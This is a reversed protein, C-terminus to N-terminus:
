GVAAKAESITAAVHAWHRLLADEDYRLLTLAERLMPGYRPHETIAKVQAPDVLVPWGVRNMHQPLKGIGRAGLFLKLDLALQEELEKSM